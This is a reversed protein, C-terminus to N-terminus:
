KYTGKPATQGTLRRELEEWSPLNLEATCRCQIAEGPRGGEPPTDWRYTKGERAVHEPRERADLVGRWKYDEVGMEESRLQTLQGNIKGVQDRAILRARRETVGLEAKVEATVDKLSKGLRVAETIKGQIRAVTQQPVSKILAMNEAEWIRMANQIKQDGTIVDVGLAERMTERFATRNITGDAPFTRAALQDIEGRTMGTQELTRRFARELDTGTSSAEIAARVAAPPTGSGYVSRVVADFERRNFDNVRSVYRRVLAAVVEPAVEAAVLTAILAQRLREFWGTTQPLDRPDVDERQERLIQPMAPLLIDRVAIETQRVVDRRIAALYDREVTTPYLVRKM